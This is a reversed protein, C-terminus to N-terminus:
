MSSENKRRNFSSVGGGPRGGGGGRWRRDVLNETRQLLILLLPLVPPRFLPCCLCHIVAVFQHAPAVKLRISNSSGFFPRDSGISVVM